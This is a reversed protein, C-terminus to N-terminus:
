GFLGNVHDPMMTRVPNLRRRARFFGRPPVGTLSLNNQTDVLLFTFDGGAHAFGVTRLQNAQARRYEFEVDDGVFRSRVWGCAAIAFIALTVGRLWLRGRRM